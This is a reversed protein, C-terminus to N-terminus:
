SRNEKKLGVEESEEELDAQNLSQVVNGEKLGRKKQAPSERGRRDKDQEVQV